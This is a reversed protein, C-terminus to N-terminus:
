EARVGEAGLVAAGLNEGVLGVVVGGVVGLLPAREEDVFEVVGDDGVLGPVGGGM